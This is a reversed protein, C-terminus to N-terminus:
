NILLQSAYLFSGQPQERAHVEMCVYVPLCVLMFQYFM